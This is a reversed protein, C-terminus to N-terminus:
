FTLCQCDFFIWLQLPMDNIIINDQVNLTHLQDQTEPDTTTIDVIMDHNADINRLSFDVNVSNHVELIAISPNVHLDGAVINDSEAKAINVNGLMSFALMLVLLISMLIKNM